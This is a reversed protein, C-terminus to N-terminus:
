ACIGYQVTVEAKLRPGNTSRVLPQVISGPDRRQAATRPSSHLPAEGGRTM